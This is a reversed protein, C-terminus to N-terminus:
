VAEQQAKIDILIRRLDDLWGADQAFLDDQIRCLVPLDTKGRELLVRKAAKVQEDSHAGRTDRHIFDFAAGTAHRVTLRYIRLGERGPVDYKQMAEVFRETFDLGSPLAQPSTLLHAYYTPDGAFIDHLWQALDIVYDVWDQHFETAFKRRRVEEALALNLLEDRSGVHAYLAGKVVGLRDAVQKMTFKSLGIEIVAQVVAERSIVAPRGLRRRPTATTL